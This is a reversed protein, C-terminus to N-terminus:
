RCRGAASTPRAAALTSRCRGSACSGATATAAACCRASGDARLEPYSFPKAVVDDGDHEFVRVRALDDARSTLVIMPTDPDVQGALGGGARIADLLVLTESNVDALVLAPDSRALLALSRQCSDAQLIEYGDATLEAALFARIAADEEALLILPSSM